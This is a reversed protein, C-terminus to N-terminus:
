NSAYKEVWREAKQMAKRRQTETAGSFAREQQDLIWQDEPLVARHRAVTLWALGATTRQPVGEGEVLLKGLMAQAHYHGKKAALQLWRAAQRPDRGGGEGALYMRALRFQANADGFYSAAYAFIQKARRANPEVATDKIGNLYYSGLAVFASAVFPAEPSNPSEDAYANAVSRFYEFAKLDDEAVGDGEAYMRGLKWQALPHGKSAAFSLADVAADKDGAYYARAGKRFAEVPSQDAPASNAGDFGAAPGGAVLVLFSFAAVFRSANSIRM